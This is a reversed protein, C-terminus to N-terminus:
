VLSSMRLTEADADKVSKMLAKMAAYVYVGPEHKTATSEWALSSLESCSPLNRPNNAASTRAAVYFHEAVARLASLLKREAARKADRQERFHPAAVAAEWLTGDM